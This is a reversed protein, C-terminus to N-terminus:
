LRTGKLDGTSCIDGHLWREEVTTFICTAYDCYSFFFFWLVKNQCTQWTWLNSYIGFMDHQTAHAYFAWLLIHAYFCHLWMETLVTYADYLNLSTYSHASVSYLHSTLCHSKSAVSWLLFFFINFFFNVLNVHFTRFMSKTLLSHFVQNYLECLM